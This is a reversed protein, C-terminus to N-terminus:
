FRLTKLTAIRDFATTPFQFSLPLRMPL